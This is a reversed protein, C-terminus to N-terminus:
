IALYFASLHKIGSLRISRGNALYWYGRNAVTFPHFTELQTQTIERRNTLGIRVHGVVTSHTFPCGEPVAGQIRWARSYTIAANLGVSFDFPPSSSLHCDVDSYVYVFVVALCGEHAFLSLYCM